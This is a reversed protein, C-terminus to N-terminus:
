KVTLISTQTVTCNFGGANNSWEWGDLIGLFLRTAGAPVVVQQQTGGSTQGNGGYFPQQLLPSLNTYDMAAQTSFNLPAPPSAISDPLGSGLFVGIISGTPATVDAIGHESVGNSKANDQTWLQSAGSLGDANDSWTNFYDIYSAGSANTVTITAGPTVTFAIQV